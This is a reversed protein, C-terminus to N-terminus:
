RVLGHIAGLTQWLRKLDKFAVANAKDSLAEAPNVHTEM